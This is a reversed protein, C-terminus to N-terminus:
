YNPRSTRVSPPSPPESVEEDQQADEGHEVEVERREFRVAYGTPSITRQHNLAWQYTFVAGFFFIVSAYFVWLMLVILSGAADYLNGADSSGLYFSIGIKGVSFLLATVFAGVWTDRWRVKADPLYKFLMAFLLTIVGLSFVNSLIQAVVVSFNPALRSLYDGFASLLASVSLSVLLIFSMGLVLTFSMFRDVILKVIGSKPKPKVRFIKNLTLQITVFVTTATFILVGISIVTQWWSDQYLGLADIATSLTQAGDQGVLAGIEGFIAEKVTERDYFTTAGIIVILIVPPLSFVTYYALAASHTFIDDELFKNVLDKVFQM